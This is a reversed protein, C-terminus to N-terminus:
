IGEGIVESEFRSKDRDVIIEVNDGDFVGLCAGVLEIQDGNFLTVQLFVRSGTHGAVWLGHVFRDRSVGPPHAKILKEYTEKGLENLEGSDEETSKEEIQSETSPIHVSIWYKGNEDVYVPIGYEPTDEIMRLRERPETM